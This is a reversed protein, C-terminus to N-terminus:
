SSSSVRACAEAEHRRRRRMAALGALGSAALLMTAPEPVPATDDAPVVAFSGTLLNATSGVQPSIARGISLEDSTRFLRGSGSSITFELRGDITGANFATFDVVASPGTYISTPSIFRSVAPSMGAGVPNSYTGLLENGDFLRTTFSGIADTPQVFIAFEFYDLNGFDIHGPVPYNTDFTIRLVDGATITEADAPVQPLVLFLFVLGLTAGNKRRGM